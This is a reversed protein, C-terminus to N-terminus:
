ILYVLSVKIKAIAQKRKGSGSLIPMKLTKLLSMSSYRLFSVNQSFDLFLNPSLAGFNFL